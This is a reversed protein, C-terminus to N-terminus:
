ELWVVKGKNIGSHILSAQRQPICPLSQFWVRQQGTISCVTSCIIVIYIKRYLAEVAAVSKVFNTKALGWAAIIMPIWHWIFSDTGDTRHLKRESYLFKSAAEVFTQRSSNVIVLSCFWTNIIVMITIIIISVVVIIFTFAWIIIVTIALRHCHNVLYKEFGLFMQLMKWLCIQKLVTISIRFGRGGVSRFCCCYINLSPMHTGCTFPDALGFPPQGLMLGCVSLRYKGTPLSFLLFLSWDEKTM